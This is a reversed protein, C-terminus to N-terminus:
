IAIKTYSLKKYLVCFYTIDTSKFQILRYFNIQYIHHKYFIFDTKIFIFNINTKGYWLEKEFLILMTKVIDTRLFLSHFLLYLVRLNQLFLVYLSYIYTHDTRYLNLTYHFRKIFVHM